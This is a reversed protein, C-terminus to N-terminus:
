IGVMTEADPMSCNKASSRLRTAPQEQRFVQLVAEGPATHCDDIRKCRRTVSQQISDQTGFLFWFRQAVVPKEDSAPRTVLWRWDQFPLLSDASAMEAWRRKRM